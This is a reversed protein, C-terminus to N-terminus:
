RPVRGKGDCAEYPKRGVTIVGKGRCRSCKVERAPLANGSLDM